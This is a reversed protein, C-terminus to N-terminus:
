VCELVGAPMIWLIKEKQQGYEILRGMITEASDKNQVAVLIIDFVYKDLSEIGQICTYVNSCKSYDSDLWAVIEISRFLM